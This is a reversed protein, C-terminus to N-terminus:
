VREVRVNPMFCLHGAIAAVGEIPAEYSWAVERLGAFAFYSAEGKWPCTTHRPLPVLRTMDLDERPLYLRAPYGAEELLLAAETEGLITGGAEVRWRGPAPTITIPLGM